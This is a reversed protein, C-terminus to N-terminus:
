IWVKWVMMMSTRPQLLGLAIRWSSERMNWALTNSGGQSPPHLRSIGQNTVLITNIVDDLARTACVYRTAAGRRLTYFGLDPINDVGAIGAKLCAAKFQERLQSSQAPQDSLGM